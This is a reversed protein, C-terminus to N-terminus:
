DENYEDSFRFANFIMNRYQRTTPHGKEYDAFPALLSLYDDRESPIAYVEDTGKKVGAVYFPKNNIDQLIKGIHRTAPKLEM